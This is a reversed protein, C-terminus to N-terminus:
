SIGFKYAFNCYLYPLSLSLCFCLFLQLVYALVIIGIIELQYLGLYGTNIKLQTSESYKFTSCIDKEDHFM